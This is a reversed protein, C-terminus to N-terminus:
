SAGMELNIRRSLDWFGVEMGERNDKSLTFFFEFIYLVCQQRYQTEGEVYEIGKWAKIM